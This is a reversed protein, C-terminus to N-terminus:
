DFNVAIVGLNGYDVHFRDGARCDIPRTFSGALVTEGAQLPIGISHLRNALWVIGMAPNDLVGAALGTEEVVGNRKMIAGIWRLDVAGSRVDAPRVRTAGLVVGADAANDSITDLVTRTRGDDPHVRHTRSDILELAPVIAETADYVDGVTVGPVDLTEALVFALEVEIKPDNYDAASLTAGSEIFMHDLLAGFDPEDINMARQMARSTLGIKHGRVSSGAAVQLDVWAAQIAYADDLTMDPHSRTVPDSLRVEVRSAEHQAAFSAIQESTLTTAM